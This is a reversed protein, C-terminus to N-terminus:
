AGGECPWIADIQLFSPHRLQSGEGIRMAQALGGKIELVYRVPHKSSVPTRDLPKANHHVHAVVGNESIFIMDLPILTNEMWFSVPETKEFVFLMGAGASLSERNMLGQAREEPTDAVGVRFKAMGWDGRVMISDERCAVEALVTVPSLITVLLGAFVTRVM